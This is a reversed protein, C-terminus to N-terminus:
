YRRCNNNGILASLLDSVMNGSELRICSVQSTGGRAGLLPTYMHSTLSSGDLSQQKGTHMEVLLNSM